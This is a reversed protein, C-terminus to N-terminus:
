HTTLHQLKFLHYLSLPLIKPKTTLSADCDLNLWDNEQTRFEVRSKPHHRWSDLLVNELLFVNKDVNMSDPGLFPRSYSLNFNYWDFVLSPKLINVVLVELFFHSEPFVNPITTSCHLQHKKPYFSKWNSAMTKESLSVCIQM